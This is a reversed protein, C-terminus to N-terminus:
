SQLSISTARTPKGVSRPRVWRLPARCRTFDAVLRAVDEIVVGQGLDDREFHRTDGVDAIDWQDAREIERVDDCFNMFEVGLQVLRGRATIM